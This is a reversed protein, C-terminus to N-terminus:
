RDDDDEQDGPSDPDAAIVSVHRLAPVEVPSLQRAALAANVPPLATALTRRLGALVADLRASLDRFVTYDQATPRADASEVVSELAGLKNNLEIPYNLADENAVLRTQYLQNEIGTLQGDLAEALSHVSPDPAKKEREDLAARIARIQVVAANAESVRDRIRAALDFEAQLDAPTVHRLRPDARVVLPQTQSVGDATLRVQYTGPMARPGVPSAAWLVMKPFTVPGAYRMDWGFHNLGASDPPHAAQRPGREEEGTDRTTDRKPAPGEFRRIVTGRADLVEIALKQAPRELRYTITAFRDVSRTATSPRFLHVPARAITPTLQRLLEAGGDLVYAGRGHTAIVVDGDRVVLDPVQTDPLNLSLPQWLAGDDFSVYIGHETGAYLLGPREPDERVAHVFDNARIGTTIRTWTRGFDDTRYIYPTLDDLQYRNAAVYARSAQRPSAEVLSIRSFPPLERPTVNAWTRGGDRTVQVYGDDSGTWIVGARVPSPAISFVVAYTEVGTQDLTIPGGSPGLTKPDHRTLDPSIREWSQGENTTRWVHQSGAYLVSPNLPDVVIPFTWQFREAIDRASYGMPNDPWPNIARQQGTTHDFATLLGGYSGAFYVDPDAPSSAIYGSEGGGVAYYYGGGGPGGGASAAVFGWDRSPVCVTSRYQQAGCAFYPRHQDAIVHYLQATPMTEATWSEGRNVSM